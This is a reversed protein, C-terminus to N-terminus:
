RKGATSVGSSLAAWVTKMDPLRSLYLTFLEDNWLPKVRITRAVLTACFLLVLLSSLSLLRM